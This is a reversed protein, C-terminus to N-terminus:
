KKYDDKPNMLFLYISDNMFEVSCSIPEKKDSLLEMEKLVFPIFKRCRITLGWKTKYIKHSIRTTPSNEQYPAIIIVKNKKDYGLIVASLHCHNKETYIKEISHNLKISGPCVIALLSKSYPNMDQEWIINLNEM